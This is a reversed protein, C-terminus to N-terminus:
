SSELYGMRLCSHIPSSCSLPPTLKKYRARGQEKPFRRRWPGPLIDDRFKIIDIVPIDGPYNAWSVPESFVCHATSDQSIESLLWGLIQESIDQGFMAM